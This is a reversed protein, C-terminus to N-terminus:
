RRVVVKQRVSGPGADFCCFYVGTPVPQGANDDLNWVLRRPNDGSPSVFTKVTRGAVDSIRIRARALTPAELTISVERSAPNPRCCLRPLFLTPESEAVGNRDRGLYCVADLLASATNTVKLYRASDLGVSGLDFGANGSANGLVHWPGQWNGAAAISYGGVACVSVDNGLRNQVPEFRDVDFIVSSQSPGVTYYTGDPEGIADCVWDSYIHHDDERQVAVVKQVSLWPETAPRTMPVELFVGTDPVVLDSLTKTEYGNAVVRVSYTGPAVMKHFDGAGVDTFTPWRRPSVFEVRAFLPAHTASDYVLGNIGKGSIDAIDMLARRNVECISDIRARDSPQRTEITWAPAGCNGFTFDQCSGHVEYWDYGNIAELRTTRSGYTSDAYRESLEIIWNSDPPDSPHNDWLYNVYSATSHYSFEATPV